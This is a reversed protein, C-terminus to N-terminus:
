NANSEKDYIVFDTLCINYAAVCTGSYSGGTLWFVPEAIESDKDVFNSQYTLIEVLVGDTKYYVIKSPNKLASKILEIEEDLM